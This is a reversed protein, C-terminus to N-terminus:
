TNNVFGTELWRDMVEDWILELVDGAGLARSAAGLKLKTGALASENQFTVTNTDHTGVIILQQGDNTPDSITPTAVLTVAGGNGAVRIKAANPDVATAALLSQIATSPTTLPGQLYSDGSNNISTAQLVTFAGSSPTTAGVTTANIEGGAIVVADADQSAITGVGLATRADVATKTEVGTATAFVADGSTLAGDNPALDANGVGSDLVAATGLGLNTRSTAADDVDNLNNAALLAGAPTEGTPGQFGSPVIKSGAALSTGPAVNDAYKGSATDEPNEVTVSLDTPIATVIMTGWTAIYVPEGIVLFATSQTVTLVVTAGEAPM